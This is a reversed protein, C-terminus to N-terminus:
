SIVGIQRLLTLIAQIITIIMAFDLAEETAPQSPDVAANKIATITSQSVKFASLLGAKLKDPDKTVAFAQKLWTNLRGSANLSSDAIPISMDFAQVFQDGKLGMGVLSDIIAAVATAESKDKLTAASIAHVQLVTADEAPPVPPTPPSPNNNGGPTFGQVIVDADISTWSGPVGNSVTSQYVGSPTILFVTRDAAISQAGFVLCLAFVTLTRLTSVIRGM